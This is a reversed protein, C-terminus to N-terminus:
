KGEKTNTELTENNYPNIASSHTITNPTVPNPVTSNAIATVMAKTVATVLIRIVDSDIAPAAEDKDGDGQNIQARMAM